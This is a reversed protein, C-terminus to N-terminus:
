SLGREHKKIIKLVDSSTSSERIKECLEKDNLIGALKSLAKIHADPDSACSIIIFFLDVPKNDLSKFDVGEKIIACAVFTSKIDKIKAHPIAIGRGIATTELHERKIIAKKIEEKNKLKNSTILFDILKDLLKYKEDPKIDFTINNKNLFNSLKM